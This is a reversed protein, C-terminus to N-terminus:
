LNEDDKIEISQETAIEEGKEWVLKTDKDDFKM